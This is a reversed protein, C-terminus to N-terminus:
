SFILERKTNVSFWNKCWSKNLCNSEVFCTMSIVLRFYKKGTHKLRVTLMILMEFSQTWGVWESSGEKMGTPGCACLRCVDVVGGAERKSWWTLFTLKM